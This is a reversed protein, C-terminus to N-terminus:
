SWTLRAEERLLTPNGFLRLAANRAEEPNMGHAVNEAVQQELHFQLERNLRATANRRRFLMWAKM